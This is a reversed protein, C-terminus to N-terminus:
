CYKPSQFLYPFLKIHKEQKEENWYNYIYIENRQILKKKLTWNTSNIALQGLNWNLTFMSFFIVHCVFM